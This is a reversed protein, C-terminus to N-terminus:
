GSYEGIDYFPNSLTTPFLPRKMHRIALRKKNCLWFLLMDPSAGLKLLMSVSASMLNEKGALFPASPLERRESVFMLPVHVMM